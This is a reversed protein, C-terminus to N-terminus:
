CFGPSLLGPMYRREKKYLCTAANTRAYVIMAIGIKVKLFWVM